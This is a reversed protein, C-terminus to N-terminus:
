HSMKSVDPKVIDRALGVVSLARITWWTLDFEWWKMGHAASRQQAHHNNHWGEGFSVVAVWWLNTSRDGTRFNQYGWTHSASNVFWTGHYVFVTRLAVGWVAWSAATFWGGWLYGGLILLAALGFQPVIFYNNLWRHVPDRLLDKAAAEAPQGNEGNRSMCWLMHAWTFGHNPTHPDEDEDSHAHHIRHVGVWQAPGGQWAMCALSTLFYEFWKPTKFSRHTLLRHYCLTIGLGGTIWCMLAFVVLGSWTFTFPAALAVLHLTGIGIVVTWDISGWSLGRRIRAPSADAPDAAAPPAAPAAADPPPTPPFPVAPSHSM